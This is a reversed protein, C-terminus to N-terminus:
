DQPFLIEPPPLVDGGGIPPLDLDGLGIDPNEIEPPDPPFLPDIGTWVDGEGDEGNESHLLVVNEAGEKIYIEAEMAENRKQVPYAGAGGYGKYLGDGGDGAKGGGIKVNSCNITVDTEVAIAAGGSGGAQARGNPNSNGDKGDGGKIVLNDASWIVLKYCSIANQGGPAFPLEPMFSLDITSGEIIVMGETYLNLTQEGGVSIVPTAGPAKIGIDKLVLDMPDSRLNIKINLNYTYGGGDIMAWQVLWSFNIDCDKTLPEDFVIKVREDLVNCQDTTSNYHIIKIDSWEAKLTIDRFIGDLTTILQGDLTWCDFYRTLDVADNLVVPTEVSFSTPNGGNNLGGNLDYTISYVIANVTGNVTVDGIDKIDKEAWTVLYGQTTVDQITLPLDEKTFTTPNPNEFDEPLGKLDQIVYDIQYVIPEWDAYLTFDQEQDVDRLPTMNANFYQIGQGEPETFYGEFIYGERTPAPLDSSFETGYAIDKIVEPGGDGEQDDFMVDFLLIKWDAKLTAGGDCDWLRASEMEETYYQTKVGDEELFYGLFKRGPWVPAQASPMDQMYRVQVSETGGTGGNQDLEALVPNFIFQAGTSGTWNEDWGNPYNRDICVKQTSNLGEFVSNGVQTVNSPIYLEPLATCSTFAGQGIATIKPSLHNVAVAPNTSAIESLNFCGNFLHPPLITLSDPLTIRQASSGTFVSKSYGNEFEHDEGTVSSDYFTIDVLLDISDAMMLYFAESGINIVHECSNQDPLEEFVANPDEADQVIVGHKLTFSKFMSFRFAQNGIELLPLGNFTDGLTFDMESAVINQAQTLAYGILQDDSDYVENLAIQDGFIYNTPDASRRWGPNLANMEAEAKRCYVTNPNNLLIADGLSEITEPLILNNLKVCMGFANRGIEEVYPMGNVMELNRCNIFANDGICLVSEPIWVEKLNLCNLFANDAIETVPLGNYESPIVARTLQRNRAQVRYETGNNFLNFSLDEAASTVANESAQVKPDPGGNLVFAGCTLVVLLTLMMALLNRKTKTKM